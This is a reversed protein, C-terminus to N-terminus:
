AEPRKLDYAPRMESRRSLLLREPQDVQGGRAALDDVRLAADEGSGAATEANRDVGGDESDDVIV